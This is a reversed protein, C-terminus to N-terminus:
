EWAMEMVVLLTQWQDPTWPPPGWCELDLYANCRRAWRDSDNIPPLVPRDQDSWLQRAQRGKKAAGQVSPLVLAM